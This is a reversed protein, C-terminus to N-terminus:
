WTKTSGATKTSPGVSALRSSSPDDLQAVITAQKPTPLTIPLTKASRSGSGRGTNMAATASTPADVCASIMPLPRPVAPIAASSSSAPMQTASNKVSHSRLM